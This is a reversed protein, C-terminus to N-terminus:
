GAATDATVPRAAGGSPGTPAARIVVLSIVLAALAFLVAFEFAVSIGHALAQHGVSAPLQGSRQFQARAAPGATSMFRKPGVRPLLRAVVIIVASVPLFSLGARLPSYGLVDQVFLTLFFLMGFLSAALGLM